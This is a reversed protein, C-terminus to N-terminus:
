IENINYYYEKKLEIYNPKININNDNESKNQNEFKNSKIYESLDSNKFNDQIKNMNENSINPNNNILNNRDNSNIYNNDYILSSKNIINNSDILNNNYNYNENMGNNRKMNINNINNDGDESFHSIIIPLKVRPRYGSTVFNDFYLSVQIRYDCKIITSNMTPLLINLDNINPYPKEEKIYKFDYLDADSIQIQFLFYKKDSPFVEAPFIKSNITKELPFKEIGNLKSFQITRILRIKCEKVKLKGRSNDIYINLPILNNIQYNSKEYSVNLSTTGGDLFGWKHVNVISNYSKQLLINNSLSKILIFKQHKLEPINPNSECILSYRLYSYRNPYPYEFSPEIDDPLKIKFPFVYKGPILIGNNNLYPKIDINFKCLLQNDKEGYYVEATEQVFWSEKKYLNISFDNVKINNTNNFNINGEITEGYLYYKKNLEINIFDSFSNIISKYINNYSYDDM